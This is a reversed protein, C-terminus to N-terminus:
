ATEFLGGGIADYWMSEAVRADGFSMLIPYFYANTAKRTVSRIGPVM